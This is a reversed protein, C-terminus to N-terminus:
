CSRGAPRRDRGSRARLDLLHEADRGVVDQADAGLGALAHGLQEVGDDLADRRGIPSASAGSCASIKSQWKSWYRPTTLEDIRTMFPVSRVAARSRKMCALAVWSASSTPTRRGSWAPRGREAGALDAVEDGADLVDALGARALGDGVTVREAGLRQLAVAVGLRHHEAPEVRDVAVLEGVQALRELLQPEVVRAEGVLGLRRAREPKPNRQPNRPRSCMSITRSRSSRSNSRLRMAVAGDTSYRTCLVAAALDDDDVVGALHRGGALDLRDLLRVERGRDERGGVVGAREHVQALGPPALHLLDLVERGLPDLEDVPQRQGLDDDVEEVLHLAAGLAVGAEVVLRGAVGRGVEHLDVDQEVGHRDVGERRDHVAVLGVVVAPPHGLLQM